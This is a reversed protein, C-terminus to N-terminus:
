ILNKEKLSTFGNKAIILHDVLEIEVYSLADILKKTIEIDAHSPNKNGSPHNHMLIIKCAKNAIAKKIIERPYIALKDITGKQVIEEKILVNSKNLFFVVLVEQELHAFKTYCYEVIQTWVLFVPKNCISEKAMLASSAKIAKFLTLTNDNIDKFEKLLDDSENLVNQLSGFRKLLSKALAKTDKRPISYFLILELLEYSLIELNNAFSKNFREKARVRHGKVLDKNNEIM